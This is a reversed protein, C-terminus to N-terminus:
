QRIAKALVDLVMNFLPPSLPGEQRKGSTLPFAKLREGNFIINETSKQIHSKNQQLLKRKSQPNELTKLMFAHKTEDFAKEADM